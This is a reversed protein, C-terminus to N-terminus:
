PKLDRFYIKFKKLEGELDRINKIKKDKGIIKKISDDIIELDVCSNQAQQLQNELNGEWPKLRPKSEIGRLDWNFSEKFDDTLPKLENADWKKAKWPALGTLKNFDEFLDDHWEYQHNWNAVAIYNDSLSREFSFFSWANKNINEDKFATGKGCEFNFGVIENLEKNKTSTKFYIEIQTVHITSKLVMDQYLKYIIDKANNPLCKGSFIPYYTICYFIYDNATLGEHIDIWCEIPKIIVNSKRYNLILMYELMAGVSMVIVFGLISFVFVLATLTILTYVILAGAVIFFTILSIIAGHERDKETYTIIPAHEIIINGDVKKIFDKFNVEKWESDLM